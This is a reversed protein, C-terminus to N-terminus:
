LVKRETKRQIIHKELIKNFKNSKLKIIINWCINSM